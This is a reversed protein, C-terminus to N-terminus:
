SIFFMCELPSNFSIESFYKSPVSIETFSPSYFSNQNEINRLLIEEIIILQVRLTSILSQKLAKIPQSQM